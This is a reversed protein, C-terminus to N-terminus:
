PLFTSPRLGPVRAEPRDDPRALRRVSVRTAGLLEALQEAWSWEPREKCCYLNFAAYRTEPFTHCTLHSKSLMVMATVGGPPPFVHLTPQSLPKLKLDHIARRFVQVITEPNALAAASCGAADVLWEVGADTRFDDDVRCRDLLGPPAPM